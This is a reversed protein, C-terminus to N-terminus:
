STARGIGYGVGTAIVGIVVKQWKHRRTSRIMDKKLNNYEDSIKELQIGLNEVKINAKNYLENIQKLQKELTAISQSQEVLLRKSDSNYSMLNTLLRDSLAQQEKLTTLEIKCNDLQNEVSQFQSKLIELLAKQENNIKKSNQIQIESQNLQEKLTKLQNQYNTCLTELSKIYSEQSMSQLKYNPILIQNTSSIQTSSSAAYSPSSLLLLISLFVLFLVKSISNM